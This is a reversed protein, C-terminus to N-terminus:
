AKYREEFESMKSDWYADWSMATLEKTIRGTAREFWEAWGIPLRTRRTFRSHVVSLIRSVREFLTEPPRHRACYAVFRERSLGRMWAFWDSLVQEGYGM